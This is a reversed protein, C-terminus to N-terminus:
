LLNIPDLDYTWNAPLHPLVKLLETRQRAKLILQWRYKGRLREQFAPSPGIIQIKLGQEQLKNALKTAAGRAAAQSKRECSLKLAFCFPPFNYNKRENIQQTYFSDWDKATAARIAPNDPNYTQIIIHGDRHGRGVRGSVQTIAQYTREDATYDPFYLSTDALVVGVVALRPLDLGKALLQTGVLIDVSGQAVTEYHHEFREAKTNDTDFRKIRARPFLRSLEEYIAKTGISKFLIDTSKCSPCSSPVHEKHGCTHCQMTHNDGHYTLPLDCNPCLAQWGCSQCLVLRATGRRNLFVLTQEGNQLSQEILELLRSSLYTSRTFHARDRLDIIESSTKTDSQVAQETLRIIPANKVSALYYESVSPTASGQILQANHLQALKGAVRLAHYHPAQEQKFAQEHAEDIVLLGLHRIPAFLSSRPGIVVVPKTSELIALFTKRRERDTLNSHLIYVPVDIYRKFAQVLQPTLSIEPVLVLVSKGLHLQEKALELYLRTKGTGTAGHLLVSKAQTNRMERIARQQEPTLKPLPAIAEQDNVPPQEQGDARSQALAAAPLFQQAITGLPAPYYESLWALLSLIAKPLPEPSVVRIIDKTAFSPKPVM